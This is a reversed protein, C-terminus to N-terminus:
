HISKLDNHNKIQILPSSNSKKAFIKSGSVWVFSYNKERAIEKTSNFLDNFHKTLHDCAYFIIRANHFELLKHHKKYSRVCNKFNEKSKTSHFRVLIKPPRRTAKSITAPNQAQNTEETHLSLRSCVKIESSDLKYNIKQSFQEVLQKTSIENNKEIEPIGTLILDAENQQQEINNLKSELAAITGKLSLNEKELFVVKKIQISLQTLESKLDEFKNSLFSLSPEASSQFEKLKAIDELVNASGHNSETSSQENSGTDANVITSPAIITSRRANPRTKCKDCSWNMDANKISQLCEDPLNICSSHFMKNCICCSLGPRLIATVTFECLQCKTRATSQTTSAPKKPKDLKKGSM